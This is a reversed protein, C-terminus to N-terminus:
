CVRGAWDPEGRKSGEQTIGSMRQETAAPFKQKEQWNFDSPIEKLDWICRYIQGDNIQMSCQHMSKMELQSKNQQHLGSLVLKCNKIGTPTLSLTSEM